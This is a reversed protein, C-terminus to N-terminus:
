PAGADAARRGFMGWGRMDLVLEGRQNFLEWRTDVLGADPRSRMVRTGLVTLRM